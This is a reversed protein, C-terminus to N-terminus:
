ERVKYGISCRCNCREAASLLPDGPYRAALGGVTFAGSMAVTQRDAARHSPRTRSGPTAIWFKDLALGTAVAGLQSGYNAATVLETRAIRRARAPALAAVKARLNRAAVQISDGAAASENLVQRVVKRTSETIGRVAAAGETTIFAKLRAAWNTKTAPPAQAKQRRTLYEYTDTAEAGGAAEYLVQLPPILWRSSVRAAILAAGTADPLDAFKLLMAAAEEGQRILAIRLADAHKAELARLRAMQAHYRTRAM